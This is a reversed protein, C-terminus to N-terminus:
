RAGGGSAVTAVRSRPLTHTSASWQPSSSGNRWEVSPSAPKRPVVNAAPAPGRVDTSPDSLKSGDPRPSSPRRPTAVHVCIACIPFQFFVYAYLLWPFEPHNCVIRSSAKNLAPAPQSLLPSAHRYSVAREFSSSIRIHAYLRPSLLVHLATRLATNPPVDVFSALFLCAGDSM